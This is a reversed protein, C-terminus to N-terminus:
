LEKGRKNKIIYKNYQRHMEKDLMEKFNNEKQKNDKKKNEQQKQQQKQQAFMMAEVSQVSTITMTPM